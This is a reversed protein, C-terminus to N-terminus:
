NWRAWTDAETDGGLAEDGGQNGSQFHTVRPGLSLLWCYMATHDDVPAFMSGAYKNAHKGRDVVVGQIATEAIVM